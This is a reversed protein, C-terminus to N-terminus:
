ESEVNTSDVQPLIRTVETKITEYPLAGTLRMLSEGRNFLMITPISTVEYKSAVHQREDVNVKVVLMRGKFESAIKEIAPSVMQCPGCWSAWFDVLVPLKSHFILDDFSKPLQPGVM